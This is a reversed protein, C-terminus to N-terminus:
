NATFSIGDKRIFGTEKKTKYDKLIANKLEIQKLDCDASARVIHFLIYKSQEM